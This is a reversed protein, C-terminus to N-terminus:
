VSLTGSGGTRGPPKPRTLRRHGPGAGARRAMTNFSESLIATRKGQEETLTTAQQVAQATAEALDALDALITSTAEALDATEEQTTAVIARIQDVADLTRRAMSKVEDAVVAFTKGAVGAREAEITANLALM